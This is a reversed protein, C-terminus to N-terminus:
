QFPYIQSQFSSFTKMGEILDVEFVDGVVVPPQSRRGSLTRLPASSVSESWRLSRREPRKEVKYHPTSVSTGSTHTHSPTLCNKFILKCSVFYATFERLYPGNNVFGSCLPIDMLLSIFFGILLRSTLILLRGLEKWYDFTACTSFPAIM